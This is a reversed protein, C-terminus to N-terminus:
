RLMALTRKALEVAAPRLSQADAGRVNLQVTGTVVGDQLTVTYRGASDSSGFAADGIGPIDTTAVGSAGLRGRKGLLAIGAAAPSRDRGLDILVSVGPTTSAVDSYTCMGGSRPTAVSVTRGITTRLVRAVSDPPFVRCFDFGGRRPETVTMNGGIPHVGALSDFVSASNQVVSGTVTSVAANEDRGSSCAAFAVGLVVISAVRALERAIARVGAVRGIM